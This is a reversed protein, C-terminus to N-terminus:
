LKVRGRTDPRDEGEQVPRGAVKKGKYTPHLGDPVARALHNTPPLGIGRRGQSAAFFRQDGGAVAAGSGARVTVQGGPRMALVPCGSCVRDSSADMLECGRHTPMSTDLARRSVAKRGSPRVKASALSGSPMAARTVRKTSSCGARM